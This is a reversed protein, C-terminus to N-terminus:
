QNSLDTSLSRYKVSFDRGKDILSPQHDTDSLPKDQDLTQHALIGVQLNKIM